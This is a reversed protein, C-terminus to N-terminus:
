FYCMNNCMSQILIDIDRVTFDCGLVALINCKLMLLELVSPANCYAEETRRGLCINHVLRASVNEHMLDNVNLSFYESCFSVNRGFVSNKHGFYVGFKAVYSVVDSSSNLCNKMFSVSRKRITDFLTITDSLIQVIM